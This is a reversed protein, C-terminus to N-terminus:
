EDKAENLLEDINSKLYESIKIYSEGTDKNDFGRFKVRAPYCNIIKNKDMEIVVAWGFVHLIQNIFLLLGTERFNEWSKKSVMESNDINKM